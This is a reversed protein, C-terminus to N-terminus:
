SLLPGSVSFQLVVSPIATEESVVEEIYVQFTHNTRYSKIWGVMLYPMELTALKVCLFRHDVM